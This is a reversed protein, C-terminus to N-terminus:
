YAGERALQHAQSRRRTYNKRSEATGISQLVRNLRAIIGSYSPMVGMWRHMRYAITRYMFWSVPVNQGLRVVMAFSM